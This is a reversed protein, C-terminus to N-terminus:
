KTGPGVAVQVDTPEVVAAASVATTRRKDLDEDVCGAVLHISQELNSVLVQDPQAGHDDARVDTTLRRAEDVLPDIVRDVQMLVEDESADAVVVVVVVVVSANWVPTLWDGDLDRWRQLFTKIIIIKYKNM